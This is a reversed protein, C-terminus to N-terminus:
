VSTNLRNLSIIFKEGNGYPSSAGNSFLKNHGQRDVQAAGDNMLNRHGHLDTEPSQDMPWANSIEKRRM